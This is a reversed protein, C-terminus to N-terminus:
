RVSSDTPTHPSLVFLVSVPFLSVCLPPLISPSCLFLLFPRFVHIHRNHGIMRLTWLDPWGCSIEDGTHEEVL